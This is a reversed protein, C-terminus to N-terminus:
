VVILIPYALLYFGATLDVGSRSPYALIDFAAVLDVGSRSPYALM